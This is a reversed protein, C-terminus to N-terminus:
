FEMKSRNASKNLKEKVVPVKVVRTFVALTIGIWSFSELNSKM